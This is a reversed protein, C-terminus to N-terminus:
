SVNWRPHGAAEKQLREPLWDRVAPEIYFMPELLDDESQILGEEISLRAAGTGPLVRSGVRLVAFAPKVDILFQLKQNVTNETEGPDGFGINLTHPLGVSRCAAAVDGLEELRGTLDRGPSSGQALLALSCGARKMLDALESDFQGARVYTNWRIGLEADIVKKCLEKAHDMPINFGPTIFFFKRIGFEAQMDKIEDVIESVGRIRWDEGTYQSPKGEAEYYARPLKTVVGIGFGSGNYKKMDLLDLRPPKNFDASFSGERAETEGGDSRVLGPIGRYDAGSDLGDLLQSFAEAGDGVIGLDAGLYELCRAPLISFAPGGCVTTAKGASHVRQVIEKVAPLNSVPNFYSQNDLNRISLGVVDPQFDRVAAEVEAPGDEAFMLDLVRMEHRSEDVGAALYALGIPVPRVVMRDMYRETQNTAVLLVRMLVGRVDGSIGDSSVVVLTASCPAARGKTSPEVGSTTRRGVMCYLLASELGYNAKCM